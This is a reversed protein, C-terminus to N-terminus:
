GSIGPASLMGLDHCEHTGELCCGFGPGAGCRIAQKVQDGAAESMARLAEATRGTRRLGVLLPQLGDLLQESPAPLVGLAATAGNLLDAASREGSADAPLFSEGEEPNTAGISSGGDEPGGTQRAVDVLGALANGVAEDAGSFATTRLFDDAMLADVAAAAESLQDPLHSRPTYPFSPQSDFFKSLFTLCVVVKIADSERRGSCLGQCKM